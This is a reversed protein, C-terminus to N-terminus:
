ARLRWEFRTAALLLAERTQENLPIGTRRNRAAIDSELGGPAYLCETGASRRSTRIQRIVTDVRSKFGAVEEFFTM